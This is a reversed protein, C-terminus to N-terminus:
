AKEMASKVYELMEKSHGKPNVKEFVKEVRGEPSIAFTTRFVGEYKRGYMSKEGWVLYKKCVAAGPDSLLRFGLGFKRAFKGHSVASDPSVGFVEIGNKSFQALSDQFGCAEATCGPTDDKPYFYLVLWKGRCDALSATKGDQDQLSFGPAQRGELGAPGLSEMTGAM